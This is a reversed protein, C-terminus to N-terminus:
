ASDNNEVLEGISPVEPVERVELAVRAKGEDLRVDAIGHRHLLSKKLPTGVRDDVERGFAVHVAGDIARPGENLGVDHPRELEQFRRSLVERLELLGLPGAKSEEM